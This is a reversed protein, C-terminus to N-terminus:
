SEAVIELLQRIWAPTAQRIAELRRRRSFYYAALWGQLAVSLVMVMLPVVYQSVALVSDIQEALGAVQNLQSRVQPSVVENTSGSLMRNVCYVCILGIFMVQNWGLHSAADPLGKAMKRAGRYELTAIVFLAVVAVVDTVTPRFIVFPVALIAVVLISGASRRAIRAARHIPGRIALADRIAHFHVESLPSVPQAVPIFGPPRVEGPSDVHGVSDATDVL